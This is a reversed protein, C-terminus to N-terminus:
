GKTTCTMERKLKDIRSSIEHLYPMEPPTIGTAAERLMANYILGEIQKHLTDLCECVPKRLRERCWELTKRRWEEYPMEAIREVEAM